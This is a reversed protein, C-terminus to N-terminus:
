TKRKWSDRIPDYEATEFSNFYDLVPGAGTLIKDFVKVSLDNVIEPDLYGSYVSSTLSFAHMLRALMPRYGASNMNGVQSYSFEASFLMGTDNKYRVIYVGLDNSKTVKITIISKPLQVEISEAMTIVQPLGPTEGRGV